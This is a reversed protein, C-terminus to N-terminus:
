ELTYASISEITKLNIFTILVKEKGTKLNTSGTKTKLILVEKTKKVLEGSVPGSTTMVNIETYNAEKALSLSKDIADSFSLDSSFQSEAYANNIAFMLLILASKLLTNTKIV